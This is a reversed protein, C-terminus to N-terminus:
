VRSHPDIFGSVYSSAQHSRVDQSIAVSRKSVTLFVCDWSKLINLFLIFSGCRKLGFLWNNIPNKLCLTLTFKKSSAQYGPAFFMWCMPFYQSLTWHPFDIGGEMTHLHYSEKQVNSYLILNHKVESVRLISSLPISEKKLLFSKFFLSTNVM